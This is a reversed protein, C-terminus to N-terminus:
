SHLVKMYIDVFQKKGEAWLILEQETKESAPLGELATMARAFSLADLRKGMPMADMESSQKLFVFTRYLNVNLIQAANELRTLERNLYDQEGKVLKKRAIAAKIQEYNEPRIYKSKKKGQVSHQQYVYGKGSIKKTVLYGKPIREIEQRLEIQRLLLDKYEDLLEGYKM